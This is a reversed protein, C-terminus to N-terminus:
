RFEFIDDGRNSGVDSYIIPRTRISLTKRTTCYRSDDFDPMPPASLVKDSDLMEGKYANKSFDPPSDISIHKDDISLNSISISGLLTRKSAYHYEKDSNNRTCLRQYTRKKRRGTPAKPPDSLNNKRVLMKPTCKDPSHIAAMKSKQQFNVSSNFHSGSNYSPTEAPTKINKFPSCRATGSRLPIGHITDQTKSTPVSDTRPHNLALAPKSRSEVSHDMGTKSKTAASNSNQAPVNKCQKTSCVVQNGEHMQDDNTELQTGGGNSDSHGSKNSLPSIDLDNTISHLEVSKVPAKTNTRQWINQKTSKKRTRRVNTTDDRPRDEADGKGQSAPDDAQTIKPAKKRGKDHHHQDLTPLSSKKASIDSEKPKSSPSDVEERLGGNSDCMKKGKAIDDMNKKMEEYQNRTADSITKQAQMGMEEIKTKISELMTVKEEQLYELKNKLEDNGKRIMDQVIEEARTRIFDREEEGRKKLAQIVNSEKTNLLELKDSLGQELTKAKTIVHELSDKALQIEKLLTDKRTAIMEEMENKLSLQRHTQESVEGLMAKLEEKEKCLTQLHAAKKSADNGPSPTVKEHNADVRTPVPTIKEESQNARASRAPTQFVTLVQSALSSPANANPNCPISQLCKKADASKSNSDTRDKAATNDVVPGCDLLGVKNQIKKSKRYPTTIVDMCAKMWSRKKVSSIHQSDNALGQRPKQTALRSVFADGNSPLLPQSKLNETFDEQQSDQELLSICSNQSPPYTQSSGQTNKLSCENGGLTYSTKRWTADSRLQHRNYPPKLQYKNGAFKPNRSDGECYSGLPHKSTLSSGRKASTCGDSQQSRQSFFMKGTHADTIDEHELPSRLFSTGSTTTTTTRAPTRSTASPRNYRLGGFERHDRIVNRHCKERSGVATFRNGSIKADVGSIHSGSRQSCSRGADSLQSMTLQSLAPYQLNTDLQTTEGQFAICSSPPETQRKIIQRQFNSKSSYGCPRMRDALDIGQTQKATSVKKESNRQRFTSPMMLLVSNRAYASM